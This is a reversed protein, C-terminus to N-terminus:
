TASGLTVRPNGGLDTYTKIAHFGNERLLTRVAEGQNFGHELALVGDRVLFTPANIVIETISNMGEPGGRLALPPEFRLDGQDLHQDSDAVYPPNSVIVNFTGTVHEFWNSLLFDATLHNQKANQQALGLAHQCVDVCTVSCQAEQALALGVNGSGTGLDLVKSDTSLFPLVAEVLTESDSRPILVDKTIRLDLNRFGQQQVIYSIPEGSCRRRLSTNFHNIQSDELANGEDVVLQSPAIGFVLCTLQSAERYPLLKIATALCDNVSVTQTHM